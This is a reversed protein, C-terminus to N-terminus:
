DNNAAVLEGCAIRPGAAGAPQSAYDDPGAHIVVAAGDDDLIQSLVDGSAQAVLLETAVRGDNPIVINELDGLHKGADSLKGHSNGGPNLHGGASNFDPAHCQGTSHLHIAKTGSPLNELELHLFTAGGRALLAATGISAGSADKLKAIAVREQPELTTHNCAGLLITAAGFIGARRMLDFFRM